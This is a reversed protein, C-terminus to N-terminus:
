SPRTRARLLAVMGGAVYALAAPGLLPRSRLLLERQAPDATGHARRLASRVNVRGAALITRRAREPALALLAVASRRGRAYQDRLLPLPRSPHRHGTVVDPAWAIDEARLRHNFDSDEGQRLDERFGGLRDFLSRAYSLGYLLREGPPTDPTRRHHLLLHAACESRTAEPEVALVSAVAPSGARHARLRAAVWGPRAVCDAALFAVYPARTHEIAVNRAGGPLLRAAVNVVPVDLGAARLRPEPNGGGSNVVVIEPRPEQEVLSRVAAVLGPEDRLSLVGCALEASM